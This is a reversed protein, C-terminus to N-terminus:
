VRKKVWLPLLNLLLSVVKICVLLFNLISGAPAKDIANQLVNAHLLGFLAFFLVGVKLRM